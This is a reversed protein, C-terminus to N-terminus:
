KGAAPISDPVSDALVKVKNKKRRFLNNFDHKFMIGVGQTTLSNRIYYNQDNYRNYAKLRINGSKTLIYEIDFDGIFNNSNMANDTYGFNGNLLLRNNLLRSSLALEVEMDSFDGKDTHFNPAITWNDSLQGLMNTLQSSITSSAVSALENNKSTGGMYEPTYFRSLALLYIMQQNMMDDTSIISKVKRYVDQTLTPFELDFQIEPQSIIGTLQLLANVPVLTRNLERDTAFSEDLDALNANVSYAAKLDIMAQLPDGHFSIQAGQKIIFERIIIDQLTFNYKGADVTYNGFMKMEDTSSYKIQLNGSGTARIKDGGEPDMVLTMAVNPNAEVQLNLNFESPNDIKKTQTIRNLFDPQKAREEALRQEKRKDTFTIFSYEGAEEQATLVFTFSSNPAASMNIDIDCKGPVGKVYASGNAFIKGYWFPNIKDTTDYCLMNKVNTVSFDYTANHFYDHTVLGNLTATHGYQDRIVADRIEIRGPTLIVSDSVTYYTNTYDLKMKFNDAYMRGKVNLNKFTGYLECLGTAEGSIESTFASMFPKLLAVNVHDTDFKFNLSDKGLYVGGRVYTMRKNPQAIDANIIIGKNENDWRSNIDAEGLLANHYAFNKVHLRPTNLQPSKSFLSSAYFTGTASGSFVVHNIRLTEFIFGLDIDSLQLKLVDDPSESVVGNAKVFQNDRSVHIGEVEIRKGRVNVKSDAVHWTTDNVVFTTPNIDVDAAFEGTEEDKGILSSLSVKGSFNRKRDYQWNIDTDFRSSAGVGNVVLLIDGNKHCFKTVANINAMDNDGDFNVSLSTGEIVNKGQVIYPADIGLTAKKNIDDVLGSIKIPHVLKIPLKFFAPIEENAAIQLSYNFKNISKSAEKPLPFSEALTPFVKGVIQGFTAGIGAFKARGELYGTIIDSNITMYRHADEGKTRSTVDFHELHVGEGDANAFSVDSIMLNGEINDINNGSLQVETIANLKYGPYKNTLNLNCLNLNTINAVADIVTNAGDLRFKGDVELDVNEDHLSVSGNYEKGDIDVDAVINSYRYGKLDIYNINGVVTGKPKNGIINLDATIDFSLENLLDPKRVIDGIVLNKTKVAGKVKTIRRQENLRLNMDTNILGLASAITGVYNVEKSDYKLSGNVDVFDFTNIIRAAGQPIAVSTSVKDLLKRAAANVRIDPLEVYLNKSDTLNQVMGSTKITLASNSTSVDFAEIKLSDLTGNVACTLYVPQRLDKVQPVFAVIDSPTFYNNVLTLSLPMTKIEEGLTQLSKYELQIDQPAIITGPLTLRFNSVKLWGSYVQASLTLDKLEFGSKEAFALRKIDVEYADNKLMPLIVDTRLQSIAIHNKDFKGAVGKPESLIDYTVGSKRIAVAELCVDFKTPPKNKDKSSLADIIYQINLPSDPTAKELHASLGIVEAYNFVFRGDTLLSWLSIGAGVKEVSALTEGKKGLVSVGEVTVENFPSISVNQIRVETTLLKSLEREGIERINNQVSPVCLTVYLGVFVVVLLLILSVVINRLVKYVKKLTEKTTM